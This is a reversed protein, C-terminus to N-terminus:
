NGLQRAVQPSQILPSFHGPYSAVMENNSAGLTSKSNLHSPSRYSMQHDGGNMNFPSLVSMKHGFAASAKKQGFMGTSENLEIELHKRGSRSVQQAISQQDKFLSLTRYRGTKSKKDKGKGKLTKQTSSVGSLDFNSDPNLLLHEGGPLTTYPM